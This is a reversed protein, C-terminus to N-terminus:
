RRPRPINSPNKVVPEPGMVRITVACCRALRLPAAGVALRIFTAGDEILVGKPAPRAAAVGEFTSPTAKAKLPTSGTSDFEASCPIVFALLPVGALPLFLTRM